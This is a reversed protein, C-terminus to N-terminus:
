KNGRSKRWKDNFEEANKKNKDEVKEFDDPIKSGIFIHYDEINDHMQPCYTEKLNNLYIIGDLSVPSIWNKAIGNRKIDELDEASEDIQKNVLGIEDGYYRMYDSAVKMANYDSM